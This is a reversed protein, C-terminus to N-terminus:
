PTLVLPRVPKPQGAPLHDYNWMAELVRRYFKADAERLKREEEREVDFGRPTTRELIASKLPLYGHKAVKSPM